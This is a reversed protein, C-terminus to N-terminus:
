QPLGTRPYHRSTVLHEGVGSDQRRQQSKGAETTSSGPSLIADDFETVRDTTLFLIWPCYELKRVFVSSLCNRTLNHSSRKEFVFRGRGAAFYREM